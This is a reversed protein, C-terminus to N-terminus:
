LHRKGQNELHPSQVVSILTYCCPKSRPSDESDRNDTTEGEYTNARSGIYSPAKRDTTPYGELRACQSPSNQYTCGLFSTM